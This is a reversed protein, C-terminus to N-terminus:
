LVGQPLAVIVETAPHFHGGELLTQITIANLAHTLACRDNIEEIMLDTITKMILTHAWKGVKALPM